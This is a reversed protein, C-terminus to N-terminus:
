LMSYWYSCHVKASPKVFWLENVYIYLYFTFWHNMELAKCVVRDNM